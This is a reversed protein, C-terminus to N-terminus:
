CKLDQLSKKEKGCDPPDTQDFCLAFPFAQFGSLANSCRTIHICICSKSTVFLRLGHLSVVSKQTVLVTTLGSPFTNCDKYKQSLFLCVSKFM